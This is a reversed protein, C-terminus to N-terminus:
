TSRRKKGLKAVLRPGIVPRSFPCVAICIACGMHENFFPLCKDFDVYYRQEGRVWTKEHSIALPPCADACIRCSKCFDDAGFTDRGTPVLPVDTMVCALRFSSGMERHILSGHKGLEGMGAEIAAPILVIPGAMPGGHATADWGQARLGSAVGKAARTGRAYQRSVEACAREEPATQIEEYDHAVGLAIIWKSRPVETNEFTWEDRMAAVGVADAGSERALRAVERTWEEPTRTVQTEALPGLPMDLVVQREARAKKVLESKTQAFFWSQLPGHPTKDPPHWYIPSPRRPAREGVGNITNGSVKPWLRM